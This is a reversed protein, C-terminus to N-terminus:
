PRGWPRGDANQVAELEAVLRELRRQEAIRALHGFDDGIRKKSRRAPPNEFEGGYIIEVCRGEAVQAVYIRGDRLSIRYVGDRM